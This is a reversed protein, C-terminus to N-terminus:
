VRHLEAYKEIREAKARPLLWYYYLDMARNGFVAWGCDFFRRPVQWARFGDGARHEGELIKETSGTM